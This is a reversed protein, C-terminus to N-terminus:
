KKMGISSLNTTVTTFFICVFIRSRLEPKGTIKVV